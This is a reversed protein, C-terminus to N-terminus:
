SAFHRAPRAAHARGTLVFEVSQLLGFYSTEWRGAESITQRKLFLEDKRAEVWIPPKQTTKTNKRSAIGEISV